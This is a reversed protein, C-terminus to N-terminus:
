LDRGEGDVDFDHRSAKDRTFKSREEQLAALMRAGFGDNKQAHRVESTWLAHHTTKLKQLVSDLEEVQEKDVAAM